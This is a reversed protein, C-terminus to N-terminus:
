AMRNIGLEQRVESISKHWNSEFPYAFIPKCTLGMVFGKLTSALLQPAFQFNVILILPLFSLVFTNLLDRYQVLMFAALGFEGVPTADFGTIIHHVDHALAARQNVWSGPTNNQTVFAQLDFGQRMMHRAYAGGLTHEPLSLLETLNISLDVYELAAAQQALRSNVWHQWDSSHAAAIIHRIGQAPNNRFTSYAKRFESWNIGTLVFPNLAATWAKIPQTTSAM